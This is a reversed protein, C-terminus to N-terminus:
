QGQSTTHREKYQKFYEESWALIGRLKSISINLRKRISKQGEGKFWHAEYAAIAIEPAVEVARNPREGAVRATAPRNGLQAKLEKIEGDQRMLISMIRGLTAEIQKEDLM